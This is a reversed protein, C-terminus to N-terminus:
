FKVGIARLPNALDGTPEITATAARVVGEQSIVLIAQDPGVRRSLLAVAGDDLSSVGGTGRGSAAYMQQLVDVTKAQGLNMDSLTALSKTVSGGNAGLLRGAIAEVGQAASRRASAGAARAVSSGSRAAVVGAVRGFVKVVGMAAGGTVGGEAGDLLVQGMTGASKGGSDVLRNAVGNVANGAAGLSMAEAFTAPTPVAAFLGFVAGTAVAHEAVRGWSEIHGSESYQRYAETAGGIVAGIAAAAAIHWWHGHEDTAITPTQGAYSYPNAAGHTSGVGRTPDDVAVPDASTWVGLDPAYARHGMQDLGIAVDRPSNAFKRTQESSDFRTLGYPFAAFEARLTGAGSTQETISGIADDFILTDADSLTHVTGGLIAQQQGKAQGCAAMAFLSLAGLAPALRWGHALRPRSRTVLLAAALSLLLLCIPASRSPAALRVKTDRADNEHLDTPSTGRAAVAGGAGDALQAIRRGGHVVFRVLTGDRVESWSDIFYTKHIEGSAAREVRMRREGAGDFTNDVSAGAVSQVHVLQDDGNWSYSRDGDDLMRGVPDYGITRGMVKTLAHPGAGAGYALVGANLAAVSSTRALLNGSPSYTWSASGWSGSATHLRYFNDYGYVESRDHTADVGARQDKIGTINGAGDYGWVLDQLVRGDSATVRSETRRRDDDYGTLETVGTNFARQLEVGDGDYAIQVAEGYGSLQGRPNYHIRISSQDPFVHLVERDQDDYGSGVDFTHGDITQHAVAVRQRVDYENEVSGSPDSMVVLKGIYLPDGPHRASRDWTHMVEPTGDGDWDESTPRGGLDFAYRSVTGDPKHHETLNGTVDYVFSHKGTDPDDVLTRRGRGDYAYRSVNGEADIRSLLAGAPDYTYASSYPQGNLTYTTSVLRGLGDRQSVTPTHEYPSTPDNQAGDWVSVVFPAMSTRTEIGMQTRTGITRALADRWSAVGPADENLAPADHDAQTVFRARLSRRGQGRADLLSVGALVWRSNEDRTLTGRKRGLGDVLDESQEDPDSETAVRRDTIVRSLPPSVLYSYSVTPAALSDGPRVVATLRGFPDYAYTTTQGDCGTASTLSGFATDTVVTETLLGWEVKASEGLLTTHDTADWQFLHGGGRGDRTEVPHGDADYRTALDQDFASPDPGVWAEQRTLDGRTVEGLPLGTFDAGDYYLRKMAIRNGHADRLEETALRGLVWDQPDNAFTRLTIAEDNGALKNGAVVEGWKSETTVNGYTDQVWETITSRAKSVDTGEVSDVQESSKYSYMVSRGDVSVDIPGTTWTSTTRTFLTGNTDGTRNTLVMGRLERDVLGVDFTSTTVLTPTSADGVASESGGAFGAFTREIPSWTGNTYGYQTVLSPDGLSDDVQVSKVVPMGVNIRSTWPAGSGRASAAELAASGYQVTTVKGLGNDVKQLLGARGAPFLEVYQWPAAAAGSVDIWVIDTSGSGNMDAFRVVTNAGRTPVSTFAQPPGFEGAGRALAVDVENVGVHVLDIWGDGDLDHLEWPSSPDWNPVGTAVQAPEFVGRGRGLWYVLSGPTLYCLDEIRDGNVDCLQTHGGDSFRLPQNPDVVGVVQPVTWDTGGLNYGIAIGAETTIVVDILRDGDMDALKTDPDEFTFNPVTKIEVPARFSTTNNGPFYRFDSTGSKVVLDIAGDGDLDALQVGTTSLSASPSQALDWDVGGLWSSGDQNQYSRYQGSAAGTVLLDPLGDGDLDALEVNPDAPTRGPPNSMVVLQPNLTSPTYTLSLTPLTSTGDRGVLTVTALRSPIDQGYTLEYRRVLGGGHRVELSTMRKSLARRIGTSFFVHPDPRDEYSIVIENRATDGFDNWVVDTLLAFGTSADWSYDIKHGHLDIAESLLYTAVNGNEAEEFGAGGFRWITGSKDRAEWTDATARQVRVFSGSEFEPRFFGPSVELLDCAVGIGAVEFPDADTFHPLGNETRRRVSPVGALRWGMGLETVGGSSDYDLSLHPEFGGAAPPVAIDVGYSSTGSALSPAFNKGLGEISGPGSPLSIHTPELDSSAVAPASLFLSALAFPAFTWLRM